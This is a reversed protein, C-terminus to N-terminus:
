RASDVEVLEPSLVMGYVIRGTRANMVPIVDGEYGNAQAIGPVSVEVPGVVARLIVRQGQSVAPIPELDEETLVKGARLFRAARMGQISRLDTVPTGVVRNVHVLAKELERRSVPEFRQVTDKVVWVEITQDDKQVEKADGSDGAALHDGRKQPGLVQIRTSDSDTQVVVNETSYGAQRLRVEVYGVSLTRRAGPLPARGITVRALAKALKSDAAQISAISGLEIYTGGVVSGDKLTVVAQEAAAFGGLTLFLALLGLGIFRMQLCARRRM